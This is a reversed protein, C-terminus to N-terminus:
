HGFLGLGGYEEPINMTTLGLQQAKKIVPWPYEHSRDYEEAVPAMENRAFDRALQEIMKQEETLGFGVSGNSGNTNM